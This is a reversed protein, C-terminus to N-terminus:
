LNNLDLPYDDIDYWTMDELDRVLIRIKDKNSVIFKACMGRQIAIQFDNSLISVFEQWTM